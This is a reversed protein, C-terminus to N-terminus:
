ALWELLALLPYIVLQVTPLFFAVITTNVIDVVMGLLSSITTVPDLM